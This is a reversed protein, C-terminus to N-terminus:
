LMQVIESVLKDTDKSDQQPLKEPALIANRETNDVFIGGMTM